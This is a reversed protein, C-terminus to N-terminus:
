ERAEAYFQIIVNVEMKLKAIEKKTPNKMGVLEILHVNFQHIREKLDFVLCGIFECCGITFVIVSACM